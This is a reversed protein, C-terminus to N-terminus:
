FDLTFIAVDAYFRNTVMWLLVCLALMLIFRLTAVTKLVREDARVGRLFSLLEKFGIAVIMVYSLGLAIYHCYKGATSWGMSEFPVFHILLAIGLLLYAKDYLSISKHM